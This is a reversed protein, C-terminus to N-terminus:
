EPPPAPRGVTERLLPDGETHFVGSAGATTGDANQAVLQFWYSTGPTLGIILQTVPVPASGSGASADPMASGYAPTPGYEFHYTTPLGRGFVTGNLVASSFTVETATGGGVVPSNTAPTVFM